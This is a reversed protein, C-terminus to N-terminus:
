EEFKKYNHMDIYWIAETLSVVFQKGHTDAYLQTSWGGNHNHVWDTIDNCLVQKCNIKRISLLNTLAVSIQMCKGDTNHSWSGLFYM